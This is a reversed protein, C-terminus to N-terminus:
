VRIGCLSSGSKLSNYYQFNAFSLNNFNLVDRLEIDDINGCSIKPMGYSSLKYIENNNKKFNNQINISKIIQMFEGMSIKRMNPSRNNVLNIDINNNSNNM